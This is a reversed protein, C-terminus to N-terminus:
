LLTCVKENFFSSFGNYADSDSKEPQFNPFTEKFFIMADWTVYFLTTLQDHTKSNNFLGDGIFLYPLGDISHIADLLAWQMITQM